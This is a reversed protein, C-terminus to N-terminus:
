QSLNQLYKDLKHPCKNQAACIIRNTHEITSNSMNSEFIESDVESSRSELKITVPFITTNSNDTAKDHDPTLSFSLSLSDIVM